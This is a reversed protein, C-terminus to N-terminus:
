AVVKVIENRSNDSVQLRPQRVEPLKELSKPLPGTRKVKAGDVVGSNEKPPLEGALRALLPKWQERVITDWSYEEHIANQTRIRQTRPWRKGNDHWESYLEELAQTIGVCDPWACWSGQQTWVKDLPPVVYGSRVLEPMASFGTTVVPTGCGQAEILPIGFGEAMSAGLYVDAANYVRAMDQEHLGLFNSYGNPFAVKEQIGLAKCLGRLDIGGYVMSPETHVYLRAGPLDEAFAAWARLQVQFAKRDPYGKNAGVMVTLHDCGDGFRERKFTQIAAESENVRYVETEIGHPIYLNEVGAKNLLDRGWKSYTLPLHAGKLCELVKPPVPDHDIPCWPCWLAPAVKEAADKMVWVDVLSIVVNAGFHHTHGKIVDMGYPDNGSPYVRFGDVDHIGGQLGYWAFVGINSRGGVVDLDALRPLLSKGQVGYGSSAWPANSSYLIKLTGDMTMTQIM